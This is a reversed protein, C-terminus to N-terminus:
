WGISGDRFCPWSIGRTDHEDYTDSIVDLRNTGVHIQFIQKNWRSNSYRCVILNHKLKFSSLCNDGIPALVSHPVTFVSCLCWVSRSVVSCMGMSVGCLHFLSWNLADSLEIVDLAMQQTRHPICPPACAGRHALTVFLVPSPLVAKFFLLALPSSRDLSLGHFAYTIHTCPV